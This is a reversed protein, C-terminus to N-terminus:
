KRKKIILFVVIAVAVSVGVIILTKNANSKPNLAKAKAAEAQAKAVEIKGEAVLKVCEEWNDKREKSAFVGPKRGCLDHSMSEERAAGGTGFGLWDSGGIAIGM